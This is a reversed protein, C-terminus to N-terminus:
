LDRSRDLNQRVQRIAEADLRTYTEGYMKGASQDFAEEVPGLHVQQAGTEKLVEVVNSPRIGGGVLIEIRDGAAEVLESLCAAGELATRAHGSTLVRRIGCDVLVDLSEAASSTADFARHFVAERGRSMSSTRDRDISGDEHLFGFVIGDAGSELLAIADQEMTEFELQSYCFGSARPRVMAMIPINVRQSAAAVLGTSPTLGGVELASCLEIRDAGAQEAAICDELSCCVAEVLVAM